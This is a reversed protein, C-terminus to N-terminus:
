RFIQLFTKVIWIKKLKTYIRARYPNSEDYIIDVIEGIKLVNSNGAIFEIEKGSRTTFKITYFTCPLSYPMSAYWM